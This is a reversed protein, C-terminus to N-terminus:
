GRSFGRVWKLYYYYYYYYYYYNAGHNPWLETPLKDQM